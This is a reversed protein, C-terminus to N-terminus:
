AGVDVAVADVGFPFVALPAASLGSCRMAGRELEGGCHAIGVEDLEERDRVALQREAERGVVTMALDDVEEREPASAAPPAPLGPVGFSHIAGLLSRLLYIVEAPKEHSLRRPLAGLADLIRGHPCPLAPFLETHFSTCAIGFATLCLATPRQSDYLSDWRSELDHRPPEPTPQSSDTVTNGRNDSAQKREKVCNEGFDQQKEPVQSELIDPISKTSEKM